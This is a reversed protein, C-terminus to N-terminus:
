IGAIEDPCVTALHGHQRAQAGVVGRCYQGELQRIAGVECRSRKLRIKVPSSGPRRARARHAASDPVDLAKGIVADRKYGLFEALM